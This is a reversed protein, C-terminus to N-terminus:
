AIDVFFSEDLKEAEHSTWVIVIEDSTEYIYALIGDELSKNIFVNDVHENIDEPIYISSNNEENLTGEEENFKPTIDQSFKPFCM